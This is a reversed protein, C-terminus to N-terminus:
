MMLLLRPDHITSNYNVDMYYLPASPAASGLPIESCPNTSIPDFTVQTFTDPNYKKYEQTSQDKIQTNIQTFLEGATGKIGEINYGDSEANYILVTRAHKPKYAIYVKKNYIAAKELQRSVGIPLDKYEAKFAQMPLIFVVHDANIFDDENYKSGREWYSPYKGTREKIDDIVSQVSSWAVSMPASVYIKSAM